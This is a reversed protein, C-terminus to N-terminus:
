AIYLPYQDRPKDSSAQGLYKVSGHVSTLFSLGIHIDGDPLYLNHFSITFEYNVEAWVLKEDIDDIKVFSRVAMTM